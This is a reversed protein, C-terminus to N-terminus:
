HWEARPGSCGSTASLRWLVVLGFRKIFSSPHNQLHRETRFMGVQGFGEVPHCLKVISLALVYLGLGKILPRQRNPFFGQARLMGVHRYAHSVVREEESANAPRLFWRMKLRSGLRNTSLTGLAPSLLEGRRLSTCCQGVSLSSEISAAM